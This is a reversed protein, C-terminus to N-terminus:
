NAEMKLSRLPFCWQLKGLIVRAKCKCQSYCRPSMKLDQWFSLSRKKRAAQHTNGSFYVWNSRKVNGRSYAWTVWLGYRCPTSLSFFVFQRGLAGHSQMLGAQFLSPREGASQLMYCHRGEKTESILNNFNKSNTKAWNQKSKTAKTESHTKINASKFSSSCWVM